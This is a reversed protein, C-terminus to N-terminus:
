WGEPTQRIRLCIPQQMPNFVIEMRNTAPAVQVPLATGNVEVTVKSQETAHAGVIGIVLYTPRDQAAPSNFKVEFTYAKAGAWGDRHAPHVFPWDRPKSQGVTYVVPDSFLRPFAAYGEKVLGFEATHRDPTGIVFLPEEATACPLARSMAAVALILLATRRQM